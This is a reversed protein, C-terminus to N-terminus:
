VHARGIQVHFDLQFIETNSLGWHGAATNPSVGQKWVRSTNASTATTPASLEEAPKKLSDLVSAGKAAAPSDRTNSSLWQLVPLGLMFGVVVGSFILCGAMATPRKKGSTRLRAWVPPRRRRRADRDAQMLGVEEEDDLRLGLHGEEDETDQKHQSPPYITSSSTSPSDDRYRQMPIKEDREDVTADSATAQSDYSARPAQNLNVM